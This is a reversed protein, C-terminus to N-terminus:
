GQSLALQGARKVHKMAAQKQKSEVEKMNRSVGGMCRPLLSTRMLSGADSREHQRAEGHVGM